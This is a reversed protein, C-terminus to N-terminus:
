SNTLINDDPDIISKDIVESKLICLCFTELLTTPLTRILMERNFMKRIKSKHSM